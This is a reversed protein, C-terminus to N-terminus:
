RARCTWGRRGAMRCNKTSAMIACRAMQLSDAAFDRRATSMLARESAIVFHELGTPPIIRHM